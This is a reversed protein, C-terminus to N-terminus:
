LSRAHIPAALPAAMTRVAVEVRSGDVTIENFSPPTSRIRESLTGAGVLRVPNAGDTWLM